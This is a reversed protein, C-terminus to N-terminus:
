NENSKDPCSQAIASCSTSPLGGPGRIMTGIRQCHDPRSRQTYASRRDGARPAECTLACSSTPPFGFHRVLSRVGPHVENPLQRAPFWDLSENEWNLRFRSDPPRAKLEVLYNRWGFIPHFGRVQERASEVTFGDVLYETLEGVVPKGAFAEEAAERFAAERYTENTECRGGVISWVGRDPNIARKFLLVEWGGDSQRHSFLVGAGHYPMKKWYHRIHELM